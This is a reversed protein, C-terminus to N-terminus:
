PVLEDRIFEYIVGKMVAWPEIKEGGQGGAMEIAAVAARLERLPIPPTKFSAPVIVSPRWADTGGRNLWKHIDVVIEVVGKATGDGLLSSEPKDTRPIAAIATIEVRFRTLQRRGVHEQNNDFEIEGDRIWIAPAPVYLLPELSIYIARSEIYPLKARLRTQIDLLLQKM